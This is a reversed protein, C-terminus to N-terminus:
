FYHNFRHAPNVALRKDDIMRKSIILFNTLSKKV